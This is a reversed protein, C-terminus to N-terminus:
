LLSFPRGKEWMENFIIGMKKCIEGNQFIFGLYFSDKTPHPVEIVAWEDDLLLFSYSLEVKRLVASIEKSAKLINAMLGPSFLARLVNMRDNLGREGGLARINVGRQLARLMAEVVRIDSYNSALYMFKEARNIMDILNKVLDEYNDIMRVSNMMDSLNLGGSGGTPAILQMLNKKEEASLSKTKRLKNALELRDKQELVTTLSSSMQQLINGLFTYRYGQEWKELIGAELLLKLRTYYRKQTLGLERIAVTSNTIGNRAYNFIKIADEHALADLINKIMVLTQPSVESSDGLQGVPLQTETEAAEEARDVAM